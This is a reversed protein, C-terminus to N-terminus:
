PVDVSVFSIRNIGANVVASLGRSPTISLLALSPTGQLEGRCDFRGNIRRNLSLAYDPGVHFRKDKCPSLGPNGRVGIAYEGEHREATVSLRYQLRKIPLPLTRHPWQSKAGVSITQSHCPPPSYWKRREEQGKDSTQVEEGYLDYCAARASAIRWKTSPVCADPRCLLSHM